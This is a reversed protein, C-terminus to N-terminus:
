IVYMHGVLSLFVITLLDGWKPFFVESIDLRYVGLRLTDYSLVNLSQDDEGFLGLNNLTELSLM